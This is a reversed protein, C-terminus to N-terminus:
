TIPIVIFHKAGITWLIYNKKHGQRDHLESYIVFFQGTLSFNFISITDTTCNTTTTLLNASLCATNIHNILLKLSLLHKKHGEPM